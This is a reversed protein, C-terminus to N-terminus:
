CFTLDQVHLEGQALADLAEGDMFGQLYGEGLVQYTGESPRIVLPHKCGFVICFLDDRQIQQAPADTGSTPNDIVWGFRGARTTVFRRGSVVSRWRRYSHWLGFLVEEGSPIEDSFYDDFCLNGLRLNRHAHRWNQWHVYRQGQIAFENWGRRQFEAIAADANWPLNFISLAHEDTLPDQGMWGFRNGVLVRQLSRRTSEDDGYASQFAQPQLISSESFTYGASYGRNDNLAGLGDVRDVIIGKCTLRRGEESFSFSAPTNRDASYGKYPADRDRNRGEWTWDPAWSPTQTSNWTTGETLIELSGSWSIHLQAIRAFLRALEVEYNPVIQSSIAPNMIALLGYVKDVRQFCQTAHASHLLEIFSLPDNGQAENRAIRALDKDVHHLNQTDWLPSDDKALGQAMRVVKRDHQLCTDKAYWHCTHISTLGDQVEKWKISGKGCLMLMDDPALAVEQVIWLRSWYPRLLFNQLALWKGDGLYGPELMLKEKLEPSLARVEYDALTKLLDLADASENAEDGLWTVVTWSGDFIDRMMAVQSGREQNNRQNISIADVWLRYRGQFYSRERLSRLASELNKTVQLETGNVNISTTDNGDGWTYSLTAYDGWKFRYVEEGPIQDPVLDNISKPVSSLEVWKSLHARKRRASPVSSVLDAYAPRYDLLSVTELTCHVANETEQAPLIAVVRIENLSQDLLSYSM